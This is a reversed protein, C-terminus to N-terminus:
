TSKNELRTLDCKMSTTSKFSLDTKFTTKSWKQCFM